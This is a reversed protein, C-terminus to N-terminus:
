ILELVRKWSAARSTGPPLESDDCRNWCYDGFLIVRSHNACEHAYKLQDDILVDVDLLACLSSKTRGGGNNTFYDTFHVGSFKNPFYTNIWQRTQEAFNESRSTIIVLEHKRSLVDIADVAGLLPTINDAYQTQFFHDVKEIAEERTGGWVEWFRYCHFDERTLSTGYTANHWPIVGDPLFPFLVDDLDVGVVM